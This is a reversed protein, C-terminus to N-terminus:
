GLNLSAKVIQGTKDVDAAIYQMQGDGDSTGLVTKGPPTKQTSIDSALVKRDMMAPDTKAVLRGGQKMSTPKSPENVKVPPTNPFSPKSSPKAPNDNPYFNQALYQAVLQLTKQPVGADFLSKVISEMTTNMGAIQLPAKIITSSLGRFVKGVIRMRSFSGIASTDEFSKIVAGKITPLIDKGIIEQLGPLEKMVDQVLITGGGEVTKLMGTKNSPNFIDMLKATAAKISANDLQNPKPIINGMERFFDMVPVSENRIEALHPHFDQIFQNLEHYMQGIISKADGGVQGEFNRLGGLAQISSDLNEATTEGIGRVVKEVVGFAKSVATMDGGSFHPVRGFNLSGDQVAVKGTKLVSEIGKMLGDLAKQGGNAPIDKIAELQQGYYQKGEVMAQELKPSVDKVINDMAEFGGKFGQAIDGTVNWADKILPEAIGSFMSLAKTMVFPLVVESAGQTVGSIAGTTGIDVLKKPDTAVSGAAGLASQHKDFIGHVVEDLYKGIGGGAAAIAANAPIGLGATFFDVLATPAVAGIVPLSDATGLAVAKPDHYVDKAFGGIASVTDKLKGFVNGLFDEPKKVPEQSNNQVPAPSGGQANPTKNNVQNWNIGPM